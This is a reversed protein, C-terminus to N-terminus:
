LVIKKLEAPPLALKSNMREYHAILDDKPKEDFVIHKKSISIDGDITSAFPLFNIGLTVQGEQDQKPQMLVLFPKELVLNDDGYTVRAILEESTILKVSRIENEEM